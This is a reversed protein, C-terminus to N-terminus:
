DKPVATVGGVELLEEVVVEELVEDLEFVDVVLELAFVELEDAFVELELEVPVVLEPVELEPVELEPVVEEPVELEPPEELLVVEEVPPLGLLELELLESGVTVSLLEVFKGSIMPTTTPPTPKRAKIPTNVTNM